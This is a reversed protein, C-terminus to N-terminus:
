RVQSVSIVWINAYQQGRIPGVPIEIGGDIPREHPFRSLLRIKDRFVTPRRWISLDDRKPLRARGGRVAAGM